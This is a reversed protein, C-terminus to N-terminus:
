SVKHCGIVRVEAIFRQQALMQFRGDGERGRGALHSLNQCLSLHRAFARAPRDGGGRNWTGLELHESGPPRTGFHWTGHESGPPRARPSLRPGPPSRPHPSLLSRGRSLIRVAAPSLPPAVLSRRARRPAVDHGYRDDGNNRAARQPQQSVVIALFPSLRRSSALTPWSCSAGRRAGNSRGRWM